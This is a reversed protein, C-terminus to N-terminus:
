KLTQFYFSSIYIRWYKGDKQSTCIIGFKKTLASSLQDVEAKTFGQTNLM